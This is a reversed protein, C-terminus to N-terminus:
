GCVEGKAEHGLREPHEKVSAYLASERARGPGNRAPM